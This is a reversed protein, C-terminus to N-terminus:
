AVLPIQKRRETRLHVMRMFNYAIAKEMLEQRVAEIGRRRVRGFNFVYKLVFILSEVASRNRRLESLDESFWDEETILRKGKAGSLSVKKIGPISKVLEFGTGSSYGDDTSVSEPVTNTNQISKLVMSYLQPSDAANGEPVHLATVFGNRSRCVQPRYGIVPERDGKIIMAASGDSLSIVKESYPVSNGNCIREVSYAIVEEATNLAAEISSLDKRLRAELSPKLIAGYHGERHKGLESQLHSIVKGAKNYLRQYQKRRKRNAGKGSATSIAFHCKRVEKLWQPVYWPMLNPVFYRRNLLQSRHFARELLDRIIGSESPWVSNARVATSDLTLESFDDLGEELVMRQQLALIRERTEMSVAQINEHITSRAPITKGSFQNNYFARVTISDRIRECAQRDTVSSLYGRLLIFLYVEEAGMRPRGTGLTLEGGVSDSGPCELCLELTQRRVWEAETLRERKRELAHQDLDNTIADFIGPDKKLAQFACQLYDAIDVNMEIPFLTPNNESFFSTPEM